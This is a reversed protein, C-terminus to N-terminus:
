YLYSTLIIYLNLIKKSKNINRLLLKSLLKLFHIHVNQLQFFNLKPLEVIEILDEKEYKGSLVLGNKEFLSKYKNNFEYRHRHRESIEDKKYLKRVLSNKQLKCPYAGLRLTGGIE